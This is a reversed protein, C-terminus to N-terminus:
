PLFVNDHLIKVLSNCVELAKDRSINAFELGRERLDAIPCLSCSVTTVTVESCSSSYNGECGSIRKTYCFCLSNCDRDKRGEFYELISTALRYFSCSTGEKGPKM